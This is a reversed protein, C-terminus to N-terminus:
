QLLLQHTATADAPGYAFWKCWVGSMYGRWYGMVWNKVPRISKRIGLWCHSLMSTVFASALGTVFDQLASAACYTVNCLLSSLILHWHLSWYSGTFHLMLEALVDEADATSVNWSRVRWVVLVVCRGNLSCLDYETHWICICQGEQRCNGLVHQIRWTLIETCTYLQLSNNKPVPPRGTPWSM